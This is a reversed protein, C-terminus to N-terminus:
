YSVMILWYVGGPHSVSPAFCAGLSYGSPLGQSLLKDIGSPLKGPDGATWAFVGRVGPLQAADQDNLADNVAMDCAMHRLSPLPKRASPILGHAKAYAEIAHQLAAETQPESLEPLRHAFDETVYLNGGSRVIGVGVTDYNPNLINARHRPSHMLIDHASSVYQDLAVNEGQRDSPFSEDGFRVQLPAEDDFQHSLASRQAMLESHKRAARALREDVTLPQLGQSVRAKNILAVLEMEGHGDFPAPDAAATQFEFAPVFKVVAPAPFGASVLLGCLILWSVACRRCSYLLLRYM